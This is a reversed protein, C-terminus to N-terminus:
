HHERRAIQAKNKLANQYFFTKFVNNLSIKPPPAGKRGGGGKSGGSTETFIKGSKICCDRLFLIKTFHTM